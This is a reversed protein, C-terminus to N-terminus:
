WAASDDIVVHTIRPTLVFPFALRVPEDVLGEGLFWETVRETLCRTVADFGDDDATVEPDAVTGDPNLTFTVVVRGSREADKALGFAEYCARVANQRRRVAEALHDKVVLDLADETSLAVEPLADDTTEEVVVEREPTARPPLPELRAMRESRAESTLIRKLRALGDGLEGSGFGRDPLILPRLLGGIGAAKEPARATSRALDGLTEKLEGVPSGRHVQRELAAIAEALSKTPEVPARRSRAGRTAVPTTPREAEHAPRGNVQLEAGKDPAAGGSVRVLRALTKLPLGGGGDGDDIPRPALLLASVLCVQFAAALLGAQFLRADLEFPTRARQATAEGTAILTLGDVLDIPQDVLLPLADRAGITLFLAGQRRAVLIQEGSPLVARFPVRRVRLVDM